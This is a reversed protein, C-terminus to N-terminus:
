SRNPVSKILIKLSNWAYSSNKPTPSPGAVFRLFVQKANEPSVTRGLEIRVFKVPDGGRVGGVSEGLSFTKPCMRMLHVM